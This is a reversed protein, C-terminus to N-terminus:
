SGCVCDKEMAEFPNNCDLWPANHIRRPIGVDDMPHSSISGESFVANDLGWGHNKPHPVHLHILHETQVEALKVRLYFGCVIGATVDEGPM